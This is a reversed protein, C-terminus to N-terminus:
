WLAVSRVLEKFMSQGATPPTPPYQSHDPLAPLLHKFSTTRCKMLAKKLFWPGAVQHYPLSARGLWMVTLCRRDKQQRLPDLDGFWVSGWTRGQLKWLLTQGMTSTSSCYLCWSCTLLPPFVSIYYVVQVSGEGLLKVYGKAVVWGVEVGGPTALSHELEPGNQVGNIWSEKLQTVPQDRWRQMDSLNDAEIQKQAVDANSKMELDRVEQEKNVGNDVVRLQLLQTM